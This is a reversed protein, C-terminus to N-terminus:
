TKTVPAEFSQMWKMGDGGDSGEYKYTFVLKAGDPAAVPLEISFDAAMNKDLRGPGVFDVARCVMKGGPDHLVVWVEIHEMVSYRINKFVGNIITTGNTCSIDWSIQADFNSYQQLVNDPQV